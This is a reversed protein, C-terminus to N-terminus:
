APRRFAVRCGSQIVVTRDRPVPADLREHGFCNLFGCSRPPSDASQETGLAGNMAVAVDNKIRPWQDFDDTWFLLDFLLADAGFGQMYAEPAPQTAVLPHATATSTWFISCATQIPETLLAL